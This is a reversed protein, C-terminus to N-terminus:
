ANDYGQLDHLRVYAYDGDDMTIPAVANLEQWYVTKGMAVKYSQYYREQEELTAFDLLKGNSAAEYVKAQAAIHQYKGQGLKM